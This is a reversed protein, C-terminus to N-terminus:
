GGAQNRNGSAVYRDDTLTRLFSVLNAKDEDSLGLPVIAPDPNIATKLFESPDNYFDIVEELTKFIGNHMYPATVSVNRLGPVKFKGLDTSDKTHEFRGPDNLDKGNFLGINKFDDGTFDPSFHCELCNAELFFIERGRLEPETMSNPIDALWRDHPTDITELTRQFAALVGTVLQINVEKGFMKMFVPGYMPHNRLRQVASDRQFGMEDTHELPLLAQEQLTAARGDWMFHRRLMTNMISPTNRRTPNGTIGISFASTDAFAFEPKHCTACSVTSDMSLIPDNFLLRGLEDPTVPDQNFGTFSPSLVITIGVTFLYVGYRWSM